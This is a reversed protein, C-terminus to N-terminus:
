NEDLLGARRAYDAAETRNAVDIKRFINRLHTAVTSYSVNLDDAIGANSSGGAIRVLVDKERATLGEKELRADLREISDLVPSLGFDSGTRRANALLKRARELAAGSGGALLLRAYELQTVARAPAAHMAKNMVLAEEFLEAALDERGTSAALQALYGSAAGLMLTGPLTINLGRYPALLEFLEACRATDGLRICSEALYVLAIPLLDDKPLSGCDGLSELAGRAESKQGLECHLLIQGPRWLEDEGRSAIIRRALDAFEGLEGRARKIAFIQFAFRGQLGPVGQLSLHRVGKRATAIAEDWNGQLIALATQFGCLVSQFHPLREADAVKRLRILQRRIEDCEGLDCLQFISDVLADLTGEVNNRATALDFAERAIELGLKVSQPSRGVVWSGKRLCDLLIEDNGSRRARSVGEQFTREALEPQGAMRYGNALSALVRARLGDDGEDLNALVELHLPVSSVHGIGSQQCVLQFVFLAEALARWRNEQYALVSAKMLTRTAATLDGARYQARGMELLHRFLVASDTSEGLKNAQIARELFSVAEGYARKAVAISAAKECYFVAKGQRGVQAAEFFHYALETYHSAPDDAYRRELSKAARRHLVIRAVTSNEAYLVERYLVHRFRYVHPETRVVVGAAEAQRIVRDVTEARMEALDALIRTEFTRGIVSAVRLCDTVADPLEQLRAVIVDRLSEPVEFHFGAGFRQTDPFERALISGVETVFLPNGGSQRHVSEVIGMPLSEGTKSHLLVGVESRSLGPLSFHLFRPSRGLRALAAHLPHRRDLDSERYACVVLIPNDAIQLCLYELLSLSSRGALHLNDFLMVLPRRRSLNLLFRTVSDFLRYRSVVRSEGAGAHALELRDRIEPLIDALEIAGSGLDQRLAADDVQGLCSRLALTWSLYPPAGVDEAMQSWCVIKGKARARDAVEGILRTKGMGADGSVAVLRGSHGGQEPVSRLLAQLEPGRGIFPQAPEPPM